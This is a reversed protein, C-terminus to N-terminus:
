CGSSRRVDDNGIHRGPSQKQLSLLETAHRDATATGSLVRNPKSSPVMTTISMVTEDKWGRGFPNYGGKPRDIVDVEFEYGDKAASIVEATNDDSDDVLIVELCGDFEM